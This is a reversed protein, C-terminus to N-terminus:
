NVQVFSRFVLPQGGDANSRRYIIGKASELAAELDNDVNIGNEYWGFNEIYQFSRSSSVNQQGPLIPLVLIQDGTAVTTPPSNDTGFFEGLLKPVPSLSPIYYDQEGAGSNELVVAIGSENVIGTHNWAADSGSGNTRVTFAEDPYIVLSNVDEGNEFWGFDQVFIFSRSASLNIGNVDRPYVLIETGTVLSNGQGLTGLTWHPILDIADGVAFGDAVSLAGDPRITLTNATTGTITGWFGSRDGGRVRIYHTENFQDATWNPTGSITLTDGSIATIVGGGVPERNLCPAVLADSNAAIETKVVGVIPSYSAAQAQAAQPLLAPALAVASATLGLLQALPSTSRPNM